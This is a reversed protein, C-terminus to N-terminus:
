QAHAKEGDSRRPNPAAARGRAAIVPQFAPAKSCNAQPQQATNELSYSGTFSPPEAQLLNKICWALSIHSEQHLINHTFIRCPSGSGFSPTRQLSARRGRPDAAGSSSRPRPAGISGLKSGQSPCGAPSQPNAARAPHNPAFRRGPRTQPASVKSSSITGAARHM